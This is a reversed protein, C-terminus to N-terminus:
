VFNNRPSATIEYKAPSAGGNSIDIFAELRDPRYLDALVLEKRTWDGGQTHIASGPISVVIRPKNASKFTVQLPFACEEENWNRFGIHESLGM